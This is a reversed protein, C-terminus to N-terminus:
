SFKAVRGIGHFTSTASYQAAALGHPARAELDINRSPHVIVVGYGMPPYSGAHLWLPTVAHRYRRYRLAVLILWQCSLCTLQLPLSVLHTVRSTYM